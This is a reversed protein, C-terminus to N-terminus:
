RPHQKGEAKSGPAARSGEDESTDEEDVSPPRAKKRESKELIRVRDDSERSQPRSGQARPTVVGPIAISRRQPSDDGGAEQSSAEEHVQMGPPPSAAVPTPSMSLNRSQASKTASHFKGPSTPQRGSHTSSPPLLDQQILMTQKAPPERTPQQIAKVPKQTKAPPAGQGISSGLQPGPHRQTRVVSQSM